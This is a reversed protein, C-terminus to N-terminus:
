VHNVSITVMGVKMWFVKGFSFKKSHVNDGKKKKWGEELQSDEKLMESLQIMASAASEMADKYQVFCLYLTFFWSVEERMSDLHELEGLVDISCM